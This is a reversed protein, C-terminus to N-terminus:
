EAEAVDEGSTSLLRMLVDMELPKVLHRDFGAEFVRERDNQQGYGTLAILYPRHGGDDARLATAVEYGSIDPLGIDVVAVDPQKERIGALGDSGTGYTFVEFGKRELLIQILERSDDVDDIPVDDEPAGEEGEYAQEEDNQEYGEEEYEDDGENEDDIGFDEDLM